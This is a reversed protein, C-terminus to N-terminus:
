ENPLMPLRMKWEKGNKEVNGDPITIRLKKKARSLGNASVGDVEAMEKIDSSPYWKGPTMIRYLWEEADAAKSDTRKGSPREPTTGYKLGADTVLFGLPEPKKGLNEKLVAARCWDSQPDPKEIGILSRVSAIIANSGRCSNSSIAEDFHLKRTHHILLVAANTRQAINVLGEIDKAIRSSNEDGDVSGRLSDVVVLPIDYDSVIKEIRALHKKNSLEIPRYVDEFPTKLRQMPVDWRQLRDVNMALCGETDCWLVNAPSQGYRKRDPWRPLGMMVVMAIALALNSKGVGPEAILGTVMAKVLWGPWLWQVGSVLEAAKEFNGTKLRLKPM